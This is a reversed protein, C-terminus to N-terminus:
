SLVALLDNLVKLREPHRLAYAHATAHQRGPMEIVAVVAANERIGPVRIEGALWEGISTGSALHAAIARRASALAGVALAASLPQHLGAGLFAIIAERRHEEDSPPSCQGNVQGAHCPRGGPV